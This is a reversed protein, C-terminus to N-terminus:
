YLTGRSTNVILEGAFRRADSSLASSSAFDLFDFPTIARLRWCLATMLLLEMRRVTLTDFIFRPELLQLDILLPLHTEVM